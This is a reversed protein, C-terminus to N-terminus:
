QGGNGDGQQQREHRLRFHPPFPARGPAQLPWTERREERRLQAPDCQNGRRKGGAGVADREAGQLNGDRSHRRTQRLQLFLSSFKRGQSLLRFREIGLEIGQRGRIRGALVCANAKEVLEKAHARLDADIEVHRATITIRM